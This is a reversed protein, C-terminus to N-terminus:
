QLRPHLGSACFEAAVDSAAFEDLPQITKMLYASCDRAYARITEEGYVDHLVIESQAASLGHGILESRIAALDPRVFAFILDPILRLCFRRDADNLEPWIAILLEAFFVQHRAEDVAHDGISRRVADTTERSRRVDTLSSTILTESVIVFFLRILRRHHESNARSLLDNLVVLFAPKQPLIPDIGLLKKAQHLLDVSFLAHYAEDVYIQHACLIADDSLHFPTHGFVLDKVVDNVVVMELKATFDLYRFLHNNLLGLVQEADLATVLPHQAAPALEVPFLSSKIDDENLCRRPMRRVTAVDYWSAVLDSPKFMACAPREAACISAFECGVFFGAVGCM